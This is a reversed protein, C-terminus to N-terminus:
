RISTSAALDRETQVWPVSDIADPAIWRAWGDIAILCWHKPTNKKRPLQGRDDKLQVGYYGEELEADSVEGETRYVRVSPQVILWHENEADPVFVGVPSFMKMHSSVDAEANPVAVPKNNFELKEVREPHQVSATGTGSYELVWGHVVQNIEARHGSRGFFVALLVVMIVAIFAVLIPAKNSM